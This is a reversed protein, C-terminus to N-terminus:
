KNIKCCARILVIMAPTLAVKNACKTLSDDPVPLDNVTHAAFQLDFRNRHYQAFNLWCPMTVPRSSGFFAPLYSIENVPM